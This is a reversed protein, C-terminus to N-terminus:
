LEERTYDDAMMRNYEADAIHEKISTYTDKLLNNSHVMASFTSSKLIPVEYWEDTDM